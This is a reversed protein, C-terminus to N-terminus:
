CIHGQYQGRRNNVLFMNGDDDDYVGYHDNLSCIHRQHWGRWDNVEDVGLDFQGAVDSSKLYDDTSVYIRPFMFVFM